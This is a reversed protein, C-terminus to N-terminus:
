LLMYCLMIVYMGFALVRWAVHKEEEREAWVTQRGVSVVQMQVEPGRVVAMWAHMALVQVRLSVRTDILVVFVMHSMGM